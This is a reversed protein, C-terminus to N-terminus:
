IPIVTNYSQAWKEGDQFTLKLEYERYSDGSQGRQADAERLGSLTSLESGRAAPAEWLSPEGISVLLGAEAM